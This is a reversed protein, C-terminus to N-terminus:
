LCHLPQEIVKWLAWTHQPVPHASRSCQVSWSFLLLSQSPQCYIQTCNFPSPYLTGMIGECQMQTQGCPRCCVFVCLCLCRVGKEVAVAVSGTHQVDFHKRQTAASPNKGTGSSTIAAFGGLKATLREGRWPRNWPVRQFDKSCTIKNKTSGCIKFFFFSVQKGSGVKFYELFDHKSIFVAPRPDLCHQNRRMLCWLHIKTINRQFSALKWSCLM